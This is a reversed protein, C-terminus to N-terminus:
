RWSLRVRPPSLTQMIDLKFICWQCTGAYAIFIVDKAITEERSRRPDGEDPLREVLRAAM